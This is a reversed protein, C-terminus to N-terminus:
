RKGELQAITNKITSWDFGRRSLFHVAKQYRKVPSLGQWRSWAKKLVTLALGDEDLPKAQFYREILPSDVGLKRLEKVLVIKGKPASRLRSEVFWQIFKEDDLLGEIKLRSIVQDVTKQSFKIKRKRKELYDRVEKVTRPRFKLFFCARKYAMTLEKNDM